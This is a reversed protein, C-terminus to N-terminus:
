DDVSPIALSSILSTLDWSDFFEWDDPLPVQRINESFANGGPDSVELIPFAVIM